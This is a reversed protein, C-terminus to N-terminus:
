KLFELLIEVQEDDLRRGKRTLYGYVSERQTGFVKGLIKLFSKSLKIIKDPNRLLFESEIEEGLLYYERISDFRDKHINLDYKNYRGFEDVIINGNKNFNKHMRKKPFRIYAEEHSIQEEVKFYAYIMQPLDANKPLVFFIYEGPKISRRFDTRCIGWTPPLSWFHPDNERWKDGIKCKTIRTNVLASSIYIRGGM